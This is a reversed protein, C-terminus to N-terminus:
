ESYRKIDLNHETILKDIYTRLFEKRRIMTVREKVEERADDFSPISDKGLKEILQVLAFKSPETEIVLSVEDKQLNNVTRLLSLPQIQYKYLLQSTANSIISSEMRYKNLSSNWNADIVINRFQVAKDFDNFYIINV